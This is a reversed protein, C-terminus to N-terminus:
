IDFSLWSKWGSRTVDGQVLFVPYKHAIKQMDALTATGDVGFFLRASEEASHTFARKQIYAFLIPAKEENPLERVQVVQRAGSHIVIKGDAARVNRVWNSEGGLSVLYSKGDHYTLSISTRIPEGTRRGPVEITITRSTFGLATFWPIAKNQIWAILRSM